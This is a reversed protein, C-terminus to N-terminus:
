LIYYVKPKTGLNSRRQLTFNEAIKKSVQSNPDNIDGFTIAEKAIQACLPQGGQAILESCFNCKEVVGKMRTPYTPNIEELYKRPDVYNFSRAGYPCAAMCNRCGICRHMDMGVVGQANQFTAKTPCVRVCVPQECHNCLTMFTKGKYQEAMREHVEDLFLHEFTEGWIWKVEDKENGIDPVNHYSHCAKICENLTAEDMKNMDIVMGWTVDSRKGASEKYTGEITAAVAPNAAIAAAGVGAVAATGLKLFKRRNMEM